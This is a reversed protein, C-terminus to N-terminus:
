ENTSNLLKEHATSAEEASRHAEERRQREEVDKKTIIPLNILLLQKAELNALLETIIDRSESITADLEALTNPKDVFTKTKIDDKEIITESFISNAKDILKDAASIVEAELEGMINRWTQNFDTIESDPRLRHDVLQQPDTIWEGGSGDCMEKTPLERVLLNREASSPLEVETLTGDSNFGRGRGDSTFRSLAMRRIEDDDVELKHKGDQFVERLTISPNDSINLRHPEKSIEVTTKGKCQGGKRLQDIKSNGFKIAGHINAFLNIKKLYYNALSNCVVKRDEELTDRDGIILEQRTELAESAQKMLIEDRLFVKVSQCFSKDQYSELPQKALFYDIAEQLDGLNSTLSSTDVEQDTTTTKKGGLWGGDQKTSQNGM